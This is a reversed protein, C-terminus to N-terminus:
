IGYYALDEETFLATLMHMYDKDDNVFVELMDLTREDYKRIKKNIRQFFSLGGRYDPENHHFAYDIMVYLAMHVPESPDLDKM